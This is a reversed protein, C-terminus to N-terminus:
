SHHNRRIHATNIPQAQAAVATPKLMFGGYPITIMTAVAFVVVTGVAFRNRM